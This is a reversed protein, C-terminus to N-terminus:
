KLKRLRAELSEHTSADSIRPLNLEATSVAGLKASSALGIGTVLDSLYRDPCGDRLRHLDTALDHSREAIAIPAETAEVIAEESPTPTRMLAAFAQADRDAAERLFRRHALFHAPDQKMLRATLVGLSAAIAAALAAGSGGGAARTPDAIDDLVDDLSYPLEDALRRELVMDPTFNECQLYHDAAMHLAASPILGIIESGGISVGAASAQNRVEDFVVHPPTQRYDTLNM